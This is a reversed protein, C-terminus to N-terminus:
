ARAAHIRTNCAWNGARATAPIAGPVELPALDDLEYVEFSAAAAPEGHGWTLFTISCDEGRPWFVNKLELMEGSLPHAFGTVIATSLDYCTGDIAFMFRRKDDPYRIILVHSRGINQVRFRYGFRSSQKSPAERYRGAPGDVVAVERYAFYEEPPYERTCDFSAVLRANKTDPTTRM